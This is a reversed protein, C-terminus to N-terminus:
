QSHRAFRIHVQTTGEPIYGEIRVVASTGEPGKSQARGVLTFEEGSRMLTGAMTGQWDQAKVDASKNAVLNAAALEAANEALTLAVIRGRFRRAESLERSADIMLLEIFAFYLIALVLAVLLAFGRESSRGARFSSRISRM